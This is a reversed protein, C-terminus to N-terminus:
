LQPIEPVRCASLAHKPWRVQPPAAAWSQPSGVMHVCSRPCFSHVPMVAAGTTPRSIDTSGRRKRACLTVRWRKRSPRTFYSMSNTRSHTLLRDRWEILTLSEFFSYFLVSVQQLTQLKAAWVCQPAGEQAAQKEVKQWMCTRRPPFCWLCTCVEMFESTKKAYRILSVLLLASKTGSSKLSPFTEGWCPVAGNGFHSKM